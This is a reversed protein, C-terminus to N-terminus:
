NNMNKNIQRVYKPRPIVVEISTGKGLISDVNVHGNLLKIKSRISALGIGSKRSHSPSMGKGNDSVFIRIEKKGINVFVDCTKAGAHKIVNVMLEQTTRYVALELYKEMRNQSGIVRCNFKTYDSLQKCVDDIATKIGFQELTTPMLEHSVRRTEIIAETLLKGTYIMIEEFKDNNMGQKLGALSIKIAYLIQAIGNHLSESIRHREEELTSLSVRFVELHKEAELKRIKDEALRMASIDLDVGLVRENAGEENYVVTATLHLVKTIGSVSIELSEEFDCDGNRIHRVSREAAERGKETTYELYIEPLIMIGKELNFLRYMGDSWVLTGTSINFDWSGLLAIEESKQLLLYNKLREEESLVRETIDVNTSVLIDEGKVFMTSYWCNIGDYSYHYDIKGPEGHQITKVMLDFLGMKKIGPFLECYLKGVMDNIGATREIKKNVSMIRFDIIEGLANRVPAFVSIGVLTTDFITQLNDKTRQLEITRDYVEKELQLLYEAQVLQLTQKAETREVAAWIREAVERQLTKESETWFRFDPGATSLVAVLKGNRILPIASVSKIGLRVLREDELVSLNCNEDSFFPEGLRLQEPWDSRPDSLWGRVSKHEIALRGDTYSGLIEFRDGDEQIKLYQVSSLGVHVAFLETAISIAQIPDNAVSLADSVTLLFSQREESERLIKESKKRSTVDNFIVAVKNEHASGIPFAYLTFSRELANSHEDFRIPQRTKAVKGYIEFWKSEIEPTLELITLGMANVLGNNKEFAPNVELFRWNNAEGRSDFLMEIICFGEDIHNFLSKYKKESERLENEALIRNQTDLFGSIIVAATQTVIEALVLDETKAERPSKFYMGFAGVAKNESTKVPFSWCARYDYKKAIYIWEKWLLDEFVDTTLIPQGTPIALGCALSDKGIPFGDIEKLYDEPMNGSGFVPHIQKNEEDAMYFATRAEGQTERVVLSAVIALSDKLSAGNIAAQFAEKQMQMREQNVRLADRSATADEKFNLAVRKCKQSESSAAELKTDRDALESNIKMLRDEQDKRLLQENQLLQENRTKEVRLSELENTLGQNWETTNGCEKKLDNSVSASNAFNEDQKKGRKGVSKSM